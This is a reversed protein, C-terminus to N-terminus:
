TLEANNGGTQVLGDRWSRIADDPHQESLEVLGEVLKVRLDDRAEKPIADLQKHAAAMDGRRNAADAAALRVDLSTPDAKEALAIEADSKGSQEASAFYRSRALHAAALKAPSSRNAEVLRDLVQMAKKPDNLKDRYLLALREAAEVDGPERKEAADYERCAEELAKADGDAGVGELAAALLRHAQADDAGRRILERALAEAARARGGIKLNLEILRRRTEQRKPNDPDLGLVQTHVPMAELAQYANRASEALVKSKLDLADVDGPNMALYRNLYQLALHPQKAELRTKAERLFLARNHQGRYAKYAFFSGVVVLTGVGLIIAARPNIRRGSVGKNVKSM